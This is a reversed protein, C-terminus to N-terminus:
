VKSICVWRNVYNADIIITSYIFTITSNVDVILSSSTALSFRTNDTGEGENIFEINSSSTNIFIIYRGIIGCACSQFKYGGTGNLIFFTGSQLNYDIIDTGNGVINQGQTFTIIDSFTGTPGNTGTPGTVLILGNPLDLLNKFLPPMELEDLTPVTETITRFVAALGNIQRFEQDVRVCSIM